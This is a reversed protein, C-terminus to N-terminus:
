METWVQFLIMDEKKNNKIKKRNRLSLQCMNYTNLTYLIIIQYEETLILIILMHIVECLKKERTLSSLIQM